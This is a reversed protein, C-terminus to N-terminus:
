GPQSQASLHKIIMRVEGNSSRLTRVVARSDAVSHTRVESDASTWTRDASRCQATSTRGAPLCSRPYDAEAASWSCREVAVRRRHYERQAPQRCGEGVVSCSGAAAPHGAATRGAEM